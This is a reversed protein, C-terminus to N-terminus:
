SKEGTALRSFVWFSVFVAIFSFIAIALIVFDESRVLFNARFSIAMLFASPLVGIAAGHGGGGVFFVWACLVTTVMARLFRPIQSRRSLKAFLAALACGVLCLIFSGFITMRMLDQQLWQMM